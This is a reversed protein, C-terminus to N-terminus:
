KCRSCIRINNSSTSRRYQTTTGANGSVVSSTFTTGYVNYNNYYSSMTYSNRNDGNWITNINNVTSYNTNNRDAGFIPGVLGNSSNTNSSTITGTYLCNEPWSNQSKIRGIIGGINVQGLCRVQITGSGGYNSATVVNLSIDVDSYCYDISYTGTTNENTSSYVADGAIGGIFLIPNYYNTNWGNSYRATITGDHLIQSNKVSVNKIEANNYIAGTVIGIKYGYSNSSITRTVNLEVDINNFEINRIITKTNGGGITGFIGYNEVNNNTNTITIVANAITHGAGDLIGRFSNSTNGIPTWAKGNLDIDEAIQFYVGEYTTGANVQEALYALEDGTSILYPSSETGEGIKLGDSVKGGWLSMTKTRLLINNALLSPLSAKVSEIIDEQVDAIKNDLKEECIVFTELKELTFSMMDEFVTTENIEQITGESVKFIKYTSTSDIGKLLVQIGNEKTIDYNQEEYQLKLNYIQMINCNELNINEKITTEDSSSIEDNILKVTMPVYGQISPIVTEETELQVIHNYLKEENITKTDYIAQITIAANELEEQTLYVRDGAAQSVTKETEEPNITTNNVENVTSNTDQSVNETTNSKESIIEKKTILFSSVKINNVTEPLTIYYGSEGGDFANIKFSIDELEKQNDIVTMNIEKNKEARSLGLALLEIITILFLLIVITIKKTNIKKM